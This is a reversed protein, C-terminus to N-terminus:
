RCLARSSCPYCPLPSASSTSSLFHWLSKTLQWDTRKATWTWLPMPQLPWWPFRCTNHVTIGMCAMVHSWCGEHVNPHVACRNTSVFHHSGLQWWHYAVSHCSYLLLERCIDQAVHVRLQKAYEQLVIKKKTL